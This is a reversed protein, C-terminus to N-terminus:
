EGVKEGFGYVINGNSTFLMVDYARLDDDDIPDRWLSLARAYARLADTFHDMEKRAVEKAHTDSLNYVSVIFM